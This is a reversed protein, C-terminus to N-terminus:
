PILKGASLSLVVFLVQFLSPAINLIGLQELSKSPKKLSSGDM